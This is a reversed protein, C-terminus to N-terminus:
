EAAAPRARKTATATKATSRTGTSGSATTGRTSTSSTRTVRKAKTTLPTEVVKEAVTAPTALTAPNAPIEAAPEETVVMDANVTDAAQVVGTGVVREGRMILANYATLAREQATQAGAVVVSANRIAVARLGDLDFEISGATARGRLTAATGAARERLEATTTVAKERLDAATTVAKEQLEATTLVARGSLSTLVTPLRRLQQYVLEGAGAAAYIPAPVRTRPQNM